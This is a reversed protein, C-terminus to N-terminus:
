KFDSLVGNNSQVCSASQNKVLALKVFINLEVIYKKLGLRKPFSNVEMQAYNLGISEISFRNIKALAWIFGM